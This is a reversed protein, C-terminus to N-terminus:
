VINKITKPLENSDDFNPKKSQSIKDKGFQNINYQMKLEFNVQDIPDKIHSAIKM